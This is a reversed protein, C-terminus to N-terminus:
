LFLAPALARPLWCGRSRRSGAAFCTSRLADKHEDVVSITLLPGQALVATREAVVGEVRM